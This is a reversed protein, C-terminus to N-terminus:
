DKPQATADRYAKPTMGTERKFAKYFTSRSNFGVDLSVTLSSAVGEAILPKAAEIRHHAIYDFFTSGIQENLTQSIQNPLAGVHRSLKQLSLNPDLYLADTTMASRIRAALQDAHAETLASRAYKAEPTDNSASPEEVMMKPPSISAFAMVFLLLFATLGYVVEEVLVGDFGINEAVFTFATAVWLAVLSVVFWDLWRLERDDLNSYLSRLKSRYDRLRRLTAVLYSCSSGVWCFILVFTALVLTSAAIGEPLEGAIFMATKAEEPQLWYGIMVVSGAVPLVIDYWRIAVSRLETTKAAVYYFVAPPLSLLLVLVIPLYFGYMSPTFAFVLPTSVVGGFVGFVLTLYFRALGDHTGRIASMAGALAIGLCAASLAITGDTHMSISLSLGEGADIYSVGSCVHLLTRATGRPRCRSIEPDTLTCIERGISTRGCSCLVGINIKMVIVVMAWTADPAMATKIPAMVNAARFPAVDWTLAPRTNVAAIPREENRPAARPSIL